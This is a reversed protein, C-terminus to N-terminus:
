RIRFNGESTRITGDASIILIKVVPKGYDNNGGMRSIIVDRDISMEILLDRQYKKCADILFSLNAVLRMGCQDTYEDRDRSDTSWNECRLVVKNKEIDKWSNFASVLNLDSMISEGLSIIPYSVEASRYDFNDFGRSKSPYEIWGKLVFNGQESEMDEEEYDPIKYDHHDECSQLARMLAGSTEKAVFASRISV